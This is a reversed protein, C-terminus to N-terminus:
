QKEGAALEAQVPKPFHGLLIRVANRTRRAKARDGVEDPSIGAQIAGRWLLQQSERDVFDVILVGQHYSMAEDPGLGPIEIPFEKAYAENFDSGTITSDLAIAYSVLIDPQEKTRTYAKGELEDELASILRQDVAALDMEKSYDIKFLKTDFDFTAKEPISVKDNVIIHLSPNVLLESEVSGSKGMSICGLGVAAASGLLIWAANKM